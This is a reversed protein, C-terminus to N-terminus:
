IIWEVFCNVDIKIAYLRLGDRKSVKGKQLSLIKIGIENDYLPRFYYELPKENEALEDLFDHKIEDQIKDLAIQVIAATDVLPMPVQDEIENIQCELKPANCTSTESPAVKM